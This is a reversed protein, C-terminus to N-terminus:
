TSPFFHSRQFLRVTSGMTCMRISPPMGDSGRTFLQPQLLELIRLNPGLALLMQVAKM